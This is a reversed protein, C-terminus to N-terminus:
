VPDVTAFRFVFQNRIMKFRVLRCAAVYTSEGFPFTIRIPTTLKVFRPITLPDVRFSLELLTDNPPARNAVLDMVDFTVGDLDLTARPREIDVVRGDDASARFERCADLLSQRLTGLRDIQSAISYSEELTMQTRDQLAYFSGLADEYAVFQRRWVEEVLTSALNRM